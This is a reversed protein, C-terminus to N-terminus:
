SLISVTTEWVKILTPITFIWFLFGAIGVGVELLVRKTPTKHKYGKWQPQHCGITIASILLEGTWLLFTAILVIFIFKLIEEFIEKM